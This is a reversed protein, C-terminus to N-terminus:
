RGIVVITIYSCDFKAGGDRMTYVRIRTSGPSGVGDRIQITRQGEGENSTIGCVGYSDDQLANLFDIVYDGTGNKTISSINGSGRITPPNTNGNFSVWARCAYIPADGTANLATKVLESNPTDIATEIEEVQKIPKDSVVKGDNDLTFLAEDTGASNQVAVTKAKIKSM